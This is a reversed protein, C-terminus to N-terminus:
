SYPSICQARVGVRPAFTNDSARFTRYRNACWAIHRSDLDPGRNAAAAGGIIAGTTFAALPFWFGNHFRYGPRPDRYGRHGRYWGRRDDRWDRRYQVETVPSAASVGPASPMQFAQAPTLGTLASAAAVAVATLRLRLANM